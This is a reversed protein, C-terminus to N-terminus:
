QHARALAHISEYVRRPPSRPQEEARRSPRPSLRNPVVNVASRGARMARSNSARCSLPPIPIASCVVTPPASSVMSPTPLRKRRGARGPRSRARASADSSRGPSNPGDDASRSRCDVRSLRDGPQRRRGLARHAIAAVTTPTLRADAVDRVPLKNHSACQAVIDCERELEGAHRDLVWSRASPQSVLDATAAEPTSGGLQRAAHALAAIM